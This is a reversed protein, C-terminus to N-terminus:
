RPRPPNPLRFKICIKPPHLYNNKHRHNNTGHTRLRHRPNAMRPRRPGTWPPKAEADKGRIDGSSWGGAGTAQTRPQKIMWKGCGNLPITAYPPCRGGHFSVDAGVQRRASCLRGRLLGVPQHATSYPPCQGGHFSVEAGAQRRASCLRGRLLGVPQHATGM